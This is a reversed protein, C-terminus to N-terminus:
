ENSWAFLAAGRQYWIYPPVGYTPLSVSTLLNTRQKNLYVPIQFTEEPQEKKAQDVHIWKINVCPMEASIKETLKVRGDDKNYEAGQMTFGTLIFGQKNEAIQEQSLNIEFRLIM